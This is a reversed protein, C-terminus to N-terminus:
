QADIIKQLADLEIHIESNNNNNNNNNNNSPSQTYKSNDRKLDDIVRVKHIMAYTFIDPQLGRDVMEKYAIMAGQSDSSKVYSSILANYLHTDPRIGRKIAQDMWKRSEKVDGKFGFARILMDFTRINPTPAANISTSQDLLIYFKNRFIDIYLKYIYRVM